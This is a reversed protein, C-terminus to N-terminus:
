LRRARTDVVDLSRPTEGRADADVYRQPRTEREVRAALYPESAAILVHGRVSELVLVRRRPHPGRQADRGEHVHARREEGPKAGIKGMIEGTRVLVVSAITRRGESRAQENAPPQLRGWRSWAVGAVRDHGAAAVWGHH